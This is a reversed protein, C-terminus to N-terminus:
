SATRDEPDDGTQRALATRVAQALFRSRGDHGVIRDIEAVLSEDLSVSYRRV